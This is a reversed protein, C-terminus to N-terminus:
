TCLKNIIKKIQDSDMKEKINQVVSASERNTVEELFKRLLMFDKQALASITKMERDKQQLLRHNIYSNRDSSQDEPFDKETPPMLQPMPKIQIITDEQSNSSRYYVTNSAWYHASNSQLSELMSMHMAMCLRNQIDGLKVSDLTSWSAIKEKLKSSQVGYPAMQSLTLTALREEVAMVEENNLKLTISAFEDVHLLLADLLKLVEPFLLSANYPGHKWTIYKLLLHVYKNRLVDVKDMEQILKNLPTYMLICSAIVGMPWDFGLMAAAMHLEYTKTVFPQPFVQMLDSIHIVPQNAKNTAGPIHWCGADKNFLYLSTCQIARLTCGDLLAIQDSITLNLFDENKFVFFFHRIVCNLHIDMYDLPTFGKSKYLTEPLSITLMSDSVSKILHNIHGIEHPELFKEISSKEPFYPAFDPQKISKLITDLDPLKGNEDLYGSSSNEELDSDQSGYMSSDGGHMIDSSTSESSTYRRGRKMTPQLTSKDTPRNKSTQRHIDPPPAVHKLYEDVLEQHAMQFPDEPPGIDQHGFFSSMSSSESISPSPCNRNKEDNQSSSRGTMGATLRSIVSTPTEWSESEHASSAQYNDKSWTPSNEDIRAVPPIDRSTSAISTSCSEPSKPNAHDVLSITAATSKILSAKSTSPVHDDQSQNQLLSSGPSMSHLNSTATMPVRLGSIRGSFTLNEASPVPLGHHLGEFQSSSSATSSQINSHHDLASVKEQYKNAPGGVTYINSGHQIATSCQHVLGSQVPSRCIPCWNVETMYKSSSSHATEEIERHSRKQARAVGESPEKVPKPWVSLHSRDLMTLSSSAITTNCGAPTLTNTRPCVPSIRTDPPLVSELQRELRLHLPVTTSAALMPSAHHSGEERRLVQYSFVPQDTSSPGHDGPSDLGLSRSGTAIGLRVM